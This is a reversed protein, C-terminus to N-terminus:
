PAQLLVQLSFISKQNCFNQTTIVSLTSIGPQESFHLNIQCGLKDGTPGFAPGVFEWSICSLKVNPNDSKAAISLLQGPQVTLTEMPKLTTDTGVIEFYVSEPPRCPPAYNWFALASGVIMLLLVWLPLGAMYRKVDENTSIKFFPFEVGVRFLIMIVGGLLLSFSILAKQPDPSSSLFAAFQQPVPPLQLGIGFGILTAIVAYIALGSIIHRIDRKQPENQTM